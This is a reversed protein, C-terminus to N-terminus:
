GITPVPRPHPARPTVLGHRPTYRDITHRLRFLRMLVGAYWGATAMAAGGAIAFALPVADALVQHKVYQAFMVSACTAFLVMAIAEFGVHRMGAERAATHAPLNEADVLSITFSFLAIVVGTSNAYLALRYWSLDRTIAHALLGVITIAFAICPLATLLPHIPRRNSM